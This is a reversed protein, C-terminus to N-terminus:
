VDFSGSDVYFFVLLAPGFTEGMNENGSAVEREPFNVRDVGFVARSVHGCCALLIYGTTVRSGERKACTYM